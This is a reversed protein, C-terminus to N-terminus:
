NFKEEVFNNYYLIVKDTLSNIDFLEKARRRANIGFEIRKQNDTILMELKKALDNYDRNKFMYGTVNDVYIDIVGDSNSCVSPLQMSMAEVLAIGFAEAHSPFAFIDVAALVNETDKRYGTFIVYDTLNLTKVLDKIKQFYTEEGRSAEGVLVFKLNNYKKVLLEAAHLLDEHGKGSSFRALMCIAIDNENLGLKEREAQKSVKEPDFKTTDVGNHLLYIKDEALTTTQLLNTKIVESIAFAATVRNYLCKHLFDTKIIFSGLQKTLFLPIKIRYLKLAPVIVWLDKSAQTHVLNYGNKKILKGVKIIQLLNVYGTQKIPYTVINNKKAEEEIKSGPYCLLEVSIGRNLLLKVAQVTFMEMGGWSKSLCSYLIKM